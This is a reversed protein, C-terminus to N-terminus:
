HGYVDATKDYISKCINQLEYKGSCRTVEGDDEIGQYVTGGKSNAFTILESVVLNIREKMSNTNIWSKVIKYM